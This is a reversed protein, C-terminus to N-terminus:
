IWTWRFTPDVPRMWSLIRLGNSSDLVSAFALVKQFSGFCVSGATFQSACALLIICVFSRDIIFRINPKTDVSHVRQALWIAVPCDWPLLRVIRFVLSTYAFDLRFVLSTNPSTFPRAAKLNGFSCICRFVSPARLDCCLDFKVPFKIRGGEMREVGIEKKILRAEKM